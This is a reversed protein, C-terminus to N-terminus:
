LDLSINLMDSTVNCWVPQNVIALFKQWNNNVIHRSLLDACQNDKGKVHILRLKIDKWATELWINRVIAGLGNDKTVGTNVVSVVAETDCKIIIQKNKWVHGWLRLALLVNWMEFHVITFMSPIENDRFQYAYVWQNFRGGLGTLCADLEILDTSHLTSHMYAATGNFSKVFKLFWNIDKQVPESMPIKEKNMSRLAELLRNVFYRAPHVVKHIFMLSGLLSQLQKKTFQPLKIFHECASLIEELKKRPISMSAKVSDIEIGWCIIRTTLKAPSIPINLDQLLRHLSTTGNGYKTYAM